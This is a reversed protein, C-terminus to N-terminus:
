ACIDCGSKRCLIHGHFSNPHLCQRALSCLDSFHIHLTIPLWGQFVIVLVLLANVPNARTQIWSTRQVHVKTPSNFFSKQHLLSASLFSLNKLKLDPAELSSFALERTWIQLHEWMELMFHLIELVTSSLAAWYAFGLYGVLLNRFTSSGWTSWHPNLQTTSSTISHYSLESIFWHDNLQKHPSFPCVHHLSMRALTM